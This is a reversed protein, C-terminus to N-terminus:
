APVVYGRRANRGEMVQSFQLSTRALGLRAHLDGLPTRQLKEALADHVPNRQRRRHQRFTRKTSATPRM